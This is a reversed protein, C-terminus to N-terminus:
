DILTGKRLNFEPNKFYAKLDSLAETNKQFINTKSFDFKKRLEEM